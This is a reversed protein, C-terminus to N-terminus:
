SEQSHQKSEIEQAFKLAGNVGCKFSVFLWCSQTELEKSATRDQASTCVM